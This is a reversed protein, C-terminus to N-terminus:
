RVEEVARMYHLHVVAGLDPVYEVFSICNDGADYTYDDDLDFQLVVGQQDVTVELTAPDPSESLCFTTTLGTSALGLTDMIHVFDATEIDWTTGGMQDAVDIYATGADFGTPTVIADVHVAPRLAALGQLWTVFTETTITTSQDREDTMVVIRLASTERLFGANYSDGLLELATYAAELGQEIASGTVGQNAMEAFTAVPDVESGDVWLQGMASRLRGSHSGNDMDTTVVGLDYDIGTASLTDIFLPSAAILADQEEQMSCSNDIVFLVDVEAHSAQPVGDEVYPDIYTPGTDGSDATPTDPDCNSCVVQDTPGSSPDSDTGGSCAVLTLWVM